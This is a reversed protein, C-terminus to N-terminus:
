LSCPLFRTFLIFALPSKFLYPRLKAPTGLARCEEKFAKDMVERLYPAIYYIGRDLVVLFKRGAIIEDQTKLEERQQATLIYGKTKLIKDIHYIDSRRHGTSVFLSLEEAERVKVEKILAKADEQLYKFSQKIGTSYEQLLKTAVEHRFYNRKYSLDDNSEDHFWRIQEKELYATIEVKSTEILPRFLTYGTRSENEQMGVLEAAGAGKCLQMLLWELRDQLHHATLLHTYAHTHILKDFFAYRIRRAEYEFNQEIKDVKYVHCQLGHTTALEQAYRVEEDAQERLGYHVIAIDFPIKHELLTFFLATSDAGGSFALLLKKDHLCRLKESPLLSM